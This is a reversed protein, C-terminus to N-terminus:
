SIKRRPPMLPFLVAMPMNHNPDEWEKVPWKRRLVYLLLGTLVGAALGGLHASRAVGGLEAPTGLFGALDGLTGITFAVWAPLYVFGMFGPFPLFLWYFYRTPKRWNLACYLAMVGSIAGSAGVLPTNTVGTLLAFVGAGLVGSLLFVVLLGLGGIQLELATGFIIFIVMNSFFHFFGSHVFIYSIWHTISTDEGSLGHVFSPHDEQWQRTQDLDKRWLRFAVKDGQEEMQDANEIFALDRFALQGLAEAREKEGHEVQKAMDLLFKPYDTGSHSSLYEAYIRGQTSVFHTKRMLHELGDQAKRGSVTTYWLVALNMFVLAWTVPARSFIGTPIPFIM